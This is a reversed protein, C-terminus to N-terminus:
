KWKYGYNHFHHHGIVLEYDAEAFTASTGAPNYYWQAGDPFAECVTPDAGRIACQVARHVDPYAALNEASVYQYAFQWPQSLIAVISSKDPFWPCDGEWRNIASAAVAVQGDFPEGRSEHWVVWELALEGEPGFDYIVPGQLIADYDISGAYQEVKKYGTDSVFTTPQKEQEFPASEVLKADDTSLVCVEDEVTGYTEDSEYSEDSDGEEEWKVPLRKKPREQQLTNEEEEETEDEEALPYQPDEALELRFIIEGNPKVEKTLVLEAAPTETPTAAAADATLGYVAAGIAAAFIMVLGLFKAKDVVRNWRKM